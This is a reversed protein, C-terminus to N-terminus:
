NWFGLIIEPYCSDNRRDLETPFFRESKQFQRRNKNVYTAELIDPMNYGEGVPVSFSGCNGHVHVLQHYTNLAELSKLIKDRNNLNFFWHMELTIQDFQELVDAPVTSFVDWEAGEVDMKLIMDHDNENGNEKMLETLSKLNKQKGKDNEGCIGVRSWKFNDHEYPLEKITHDYMYVPKSLEEAFHSDWTVDSSIGFSYFINKDNVEDLMIYGGSHEQDGIRVYKGGKVDRVTMLSKLKQFYSSVDQHELLSTYYEITQKRELERRLASLNAQIDKVIQIGTKIKGM